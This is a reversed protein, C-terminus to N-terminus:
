MRTCEGQGQSLVWTSCPSSRLHLSPCIHTSNVKQIVALHLLVWHTVHSLYLLVNLRLPHAYIQSNWLINFFLWKCLQYLLISIGLLTCFLEM